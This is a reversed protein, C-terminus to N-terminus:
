KDGPSFPQWSGSLTILHEKKKFPGYYPLHEVRNFAKSYDISTLISAARSDELHETVQDFTEALFHYTSCGKQGGFQNQKLKVYEQSWALVIREYIKSLFNTCSINRCDSETSPSACKPIVMVYETKWASPWDAQNTIANYIKTIPKALVEICNSLVNVFLDGSVRSKTKKSQKIKKIVQEETLIPAPILVGVPIQETNLPEFQNSINNFFRALNEATDQETTGPNKSM